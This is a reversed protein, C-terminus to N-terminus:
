RLACMLHADSQREPGRWPLQNSQDRSISESERHGADEGAHDQRERERAHEARQDESHLDPIKEGKGGM